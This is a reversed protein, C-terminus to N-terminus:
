RRRGRGPQQPFDAVGALRGDHEGVHAAGCQGRPVALDGATFQAHVAKLSTLLLVAALTLKLQNTKM